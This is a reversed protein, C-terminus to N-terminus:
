YLSWRQHKGGKLDAAPQLPCDPVVAFGIVSLMISLINSFLENEMSKITRKFRDRHYEDSTLHFPFM